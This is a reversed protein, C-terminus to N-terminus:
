SEKNKSVNKEKYCEDNFLRIAPFFPLQAYSTEPVCVLSCIIKSCALEDLTDSTNNKPVRPISTNVM